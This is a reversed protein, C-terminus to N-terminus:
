VLHEKFSSATDAKDRLLVSFFYVRLLYLRMFGPIFTFICLETMM